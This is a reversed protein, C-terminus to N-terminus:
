KGQERLRRQQCAPCNCQNKPKQVPASPLDPKKEEDPKKEASAKEDNDHTEFLNATIEDGFAEAFAEQVEASVPEAEAAAPASEESAVYTTYEEQEIVPAESAKAEIVSSINTDDNSEPKVTKENDQQRFSRKAMELAQRIYERQQAELETRNLNNASWNM